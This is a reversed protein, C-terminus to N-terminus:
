TQSYKRSIEETRTSVTNIAHIYKRTCRDLCLMEATSLDSKKVNKACRTFCKSSLRHITNAVGEYEMKQMKWEKDQQEQSKGFPNWSM